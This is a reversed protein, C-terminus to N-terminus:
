EGVVDEIAGDTLTLSSEAQNCTLTVSIGNNDTGGQLDAASAEVGTQRGLGIYNGEATKAVVFFRGLSIGDLFAHMEKTYSGGVSFTLTVVRYKNGSSGSALTDSFEVSDKNPEIHVFSAGTDPTVASIVDEGSPDDTIDVKVSNYDICWLDTIQPLSYGCNTSKLVDKSITCVIAM